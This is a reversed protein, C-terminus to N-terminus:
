NSNQFSKLANEAEKGKNTGILIKKGDKLELQIGVNGSVNYAKGNKGNFATRMGWGGFEKVPSYLRVYCESVQDWPLIKARRHFPKYQYIIKDRSIETHLRSAMVLYSLLFLLGFLPIYGWDPIPHTGFPTNFVIQQISGFLTTASLVILLYWIWKQTQKQEEKFLIKKEM